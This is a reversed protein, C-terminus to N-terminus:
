LSNWSLTVRHSATTSTVDHHIKRYAHRTPTLAFQTVARCLCCRLELLNMTRLWYVVTAM